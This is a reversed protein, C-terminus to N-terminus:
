KGFLEFFNAVFRGHKAFPVDPLVAIVVGCFSTEVLGDNAHTGMEIEFGVGLHVIGLALVKGIEQGIFRDVKNVPFFVFRKEEVQGVKANMRGVVGFRFEDGMKLVFGPHPAM